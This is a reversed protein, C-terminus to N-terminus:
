CDGRRRFVFTKGDAIGIWGNDRSRWPAPWAVSDGPGVCVELFRVMGLLCCRKSGKGFDFGHHAATRSVSASCARITAANRAVPSGPAMVGLRMPKSYTGPLRKPAAM